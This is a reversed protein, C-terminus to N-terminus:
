RTPASRKKVTLVSCPALRVITEAVSGLVLRHLGTRGHTGVVILHARHAIAEDVIRQAPAGRVVHFHLKVTPPLAARPRIKDVEAVMGAAVQESENMADLTRGQATDLVHLLVLESPARLIALDIAEALAIRSCESFDTAVLLTFPATM